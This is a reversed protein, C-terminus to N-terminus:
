HNLGLVACIFSQGDSETPTAPVGLKQSLEDPTIDDLFVDGDARLATSSFLLEEGLEKDALQECLDKGTLLGSVTINEGFFTIGSVPFFDNGNGRPERVRNSQFCISRDNGRSIIIRALAIYRRPRIDHRDRCTCEM